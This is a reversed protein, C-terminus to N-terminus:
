PVEVVAPKGRGRSQLFLCCFYSVCFIVAAAADFREIDQAPHWRFHQLAIYSYIPIQVVFNLLTLGQWYSVSMSAICMLAFMMAMNMRYMSGSDIWLCNFVLCLAAMCNLLDLRDRLYLTVTIGVLVICVLPRAFLVWSESLFIWPSAHGATAPASGVLVRDM